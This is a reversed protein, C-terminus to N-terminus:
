RGIEVLYNQGNDSVAHVLVDDGFPWEDKWEEREDYEAYSKKTIGEPDDLLAQYAAAVAQERLGFVGEVTTEARAGVRDSDYDIDTQLVYYLPADVLGDPGAKIGKVSPTTDIRVKLVPGAPAKAYVQVGDGHPWNEPDTREEYSEFEDTQYGLSHLCSKAAAKAASLMAYTNFVDVTRTAGSPDKFYDVVELLVHYLMEPEGAADSEVNTGNTAM